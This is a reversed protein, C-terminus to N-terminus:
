SPNTSTGGKSSVCGCKAESAALATTCARFWDCVAGIGSALLRVALAIPRLFGVRLALCAGVAGAEAGAGFSVVLRLM